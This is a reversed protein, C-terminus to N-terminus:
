RQVTLLLGMLAVIFGGIFITTLVRITAIYQREVYKDLERYIFTGKLLMEGISVGKKRCGYLIATGVLGCAFSIALLAGFVARM